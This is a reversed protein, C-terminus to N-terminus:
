NLGQREIIGITWEVILAFDRLTELIPAGDVGGSQDFAVSVKASVQENFGEPIRHIPVLTNTIAIPEFARPSGGPQYFPKGGPGPGLLRINGDPGQFMGPVQVMTQVSVVAQNVFTIRNHRDMTSLRHLANMPRHWSGRGHLSCICKEAKNPTGRLKAEKGVSLRKAKSHIPFNSNGTNGTSNSELRVLDCVLNDLGFRLNHVIDGVIVGIDKPVESAGSISVVTEGTQSDEETVLEVPNTEFHSGITDDLEHIHKLARALKRRPNHLPGDPLPRRLRRAPLPKREYARVLEGDRYLATGEGDVNVAFFGGTGGSDASSM